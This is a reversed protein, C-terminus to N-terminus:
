RDITVSPEGHEVTITAPMGILEIEEGLPEGTLVTVVLGKHEGAVITLELRQLPRGLDDTDTHVDMLFADHTGDPLTADSPEATSMVVHECGCAVGTV